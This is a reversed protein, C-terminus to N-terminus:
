RQRRVKGPGGEFWQCGQMWAKAKCNVPIPVKCRTETVVKEIAAMRLFQRKDQLPDSCSASRPNARPIKAYVDARYSVGFACLPWSLSKLVVRRGPRTCKNDYGCETCSLGCACKPLLNGGGTNPISAVFRSELVYSMSRLRHTVASSRRSITMSEAREM